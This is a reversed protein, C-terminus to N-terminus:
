VPHAGHIEGRYLAVSISSETWRFHQISWDKIPWRALARDLGEQAEEPADRVLDCLYIIRTRLDTDMYLSGRDEADRLHQDAAPVLERFEGQFDLCMLRWFDAM